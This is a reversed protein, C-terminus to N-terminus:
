AAVECPTPIVEPATSVVPKVQQAFDVVAAVPWGAAFLHCIGTYAQEATLESTYTFWLGPIDPGATSRAALTWTQGSDTRQLRVIVGQATFQAERCSGRHLTRM